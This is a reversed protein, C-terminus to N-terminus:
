IKSGHQFETERNKTPTKKPLTKWMFKWHHVVNFGLKRLLTVSAINQESTYLVIHTMGKRFLLNMAHCSLASALGKGRFEPITTAPGLYGRRANFFRNYNIDPKAVLVAVIKKDFEAVYIWEESFDPFDVKWKQLDSQKLREWGFGANVTKILEEEEETKLHRIVVNEPVKTIPLPMNLTALMQYLGGEPEYGREIWESINQSGADVSAFIMHGKVHKETEEVLNKEIIRRDPRQQVTLWRIEEGWHGSNYAASGIVKGNEEAVLVTFKGEQIRKQLAVETYPVFEHQEKLIDNLLIVLDSLDESIFNRIKVTM